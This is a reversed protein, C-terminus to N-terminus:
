IYNQNNKKSNIPIILKIKNYVNLSFFLIIQLFVFINNKYFLKKIM